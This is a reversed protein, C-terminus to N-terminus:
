TEKIRRGGVLFSSLHRLEEIIIQGLRFQFICHFNVLLRPEGYDPSISVRPECKLQSNKLLVPMMSSLLSWLGGCTVATFFPDGAGLTISLDFQRVEQVFRTLLSYRRRLGHIRDVIKSVGERNTVPSMRGLTRTPLPMCFRGMCFLVKISSGNENLSYYFEYGFKTILIFLLLLILFLSLMDM